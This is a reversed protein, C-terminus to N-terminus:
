KKDEEYVWQCAEFVRQPRYLETFLDGFIEICKGGKCLKVVLPYEVVTYGKEEIKLKCKYALEFINIIYIDECGIVSYPLENQTLNPNSELKYVEKINFNLVESLVEKSIIEKM